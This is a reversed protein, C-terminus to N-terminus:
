KLISDGPNVAPGGLFATATWSHLVPPDLGQTSRGLAEVVVHYETLEATLPLDSIILPFPDTLREPQVDLHGSRQPVTEGDATITFRFAEAAAAQSWDAPPSAFSITGPRADTRSLDVAIPLSAGPELEFASTSGEALLGDMDTTSDWLSVSVRFEHDPELGSVLITGGACALPNTQFFKGYEHQELTDHSNQARIM